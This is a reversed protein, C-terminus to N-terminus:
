YLANTVLKKLRDPNGEVYEATQQINAHGMLLQLSKIDIGNEILRTAFTRRGSHSSAKIGSEKYINIILTTMSINSFGCGKQSIFFPQERSFIERKKIARDIRWDIYDKIATRIKEDTLYMARPKDGKTRQLEVVEHINLNDDLIDKIKLHALEISRLGLGYSFLVILTDRKGHFRTPVIKLLRKFEDKSLVNAKGKTTRAM